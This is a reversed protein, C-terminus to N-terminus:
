RCLCSRGAKRPTRDSGSRGKTDNNFLLAQTSVLGGRDRHIRGFPNVLKGLHCKSFCLQSIFKAEQTFVSLLTQPTMLRCPLFESVLRLWPLWCCLLRGLPLRPARPMWLAPRTLSALVVWRGTGGRESQRHDGKSQQSPPGSMAVDSPSPSRQLTTPRQGRGSARHGQSGLGSRSTQRSRTM